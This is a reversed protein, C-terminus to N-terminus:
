AQVFLSLSQYVARSMSANCNFSLVLLPNGCVTTYSRQRVYAALTLQMWDVSTLLYWYAVDLVPWLDLYEVVPLKSKRVLLVLEFSPGVKLTLVNLVEHFYVKGGYDHIGLSGVWRLKLSPSIPVKWAPLGLPVQVQFMYFM